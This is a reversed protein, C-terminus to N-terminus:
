CSRGTCPLPPYTMCRLPRRELSDQLTALVTRAREAADKHGDRDLQDAVALQHAVHEEANRVYREAIALANESQGMGEEGRGFCSGITGGSRPLLPRSQTGAQAMAAIEVCARGM